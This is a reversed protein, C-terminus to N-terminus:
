EEKRCLQASCNEARSCDLVQKGSSDIVMTCGVGSCAAQCASLDCSPGPCGETGSQQPTIAREPFSQGGRKGAAAYSSDHSAIGAAAGFTLGIGLTLIRVYTM